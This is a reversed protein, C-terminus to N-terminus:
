WHQSGRGAGRCLPVTWSSWGPRTSSASGYMSALSGQVMVEGTDKGARVGVVMTLRQGNLKEWMSWPIEM